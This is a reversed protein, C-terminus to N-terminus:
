DADQPSALPDHRKYRIAGMLAGCGEEDISPQLWPWFAEWFLDHILTDFLDALIQDISPTKAMKNTFDDAMQAMKNTFNDAMQAVIRREISAYDVGALGGPHPTLGSFVVTKGMGSTKPSVFENPKRGLKHGAMARVPGGSYPVSRRKAM